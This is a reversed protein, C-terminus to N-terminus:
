EFFDRRGGSNESEHEVESEAKMGDIMADYGARQYEAAEEAERKAKIAADLKLKASRTRMSQALMVAIMAIGSAAAAIYKWIASM